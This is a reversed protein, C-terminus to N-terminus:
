HERGHFLRVPRNDMQIANQRVIHPNYVRKGAMFSCRRQGSECDRLVYTHILGYICVYIYPYDYLNLNLGM